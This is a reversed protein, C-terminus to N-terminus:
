PEYGGVGHKLLGKLVDIVDEALLGAACSFEVVGLLSGPQM